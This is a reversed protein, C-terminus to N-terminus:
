SSSSGPDRLLMQGVSPEHSPVGVRVEPGRLDAAAAVQDLAQETVSSAKESGNGIGATIRCPTASRIPPQETAATSSSMRQFPSRTTAIGTQDGSRGYRRRAIAIATRSGPRRIRMRSANLLDVVEAVEHSEAKRTSRAIAESTAGRVSDRVCRSSCGWGNACGGRPRDGAHRPRGCRDWRWDRACASATRCLPRRL